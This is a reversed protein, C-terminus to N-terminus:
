LVFQELHQRKLLCTLSGPKIRMPSQESTVVRFVWERENGKGDFVEEDVDHSLRTGIMLLVERHPRCKELRVLFMHTIM